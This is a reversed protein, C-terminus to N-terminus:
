EGWDEGEIALEQITISGKENKMIYDLGCDSCGIIEGEEIDDPVSIVADCDKCKYMMKSPMNLKAAEIYYNHCLHGLFVYLHAM